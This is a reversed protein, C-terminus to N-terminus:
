RQHDALYRSLKQYNSEHKEEEKLKGITNEIEDIRERFIECLQENPHKLGEELGEMFGDRIAEAIKLHKRTKM